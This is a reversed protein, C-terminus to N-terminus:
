FRFDDRRRKVIHKFYFYVFILNFAYYGSEIEIWVNFKPCDQKGFAFMIVILLILFSCCGENM